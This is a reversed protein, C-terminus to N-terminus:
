KTSKFIDVMKMDRKQWNKQKSKWEKTQYQNKKKERYNEENKASM